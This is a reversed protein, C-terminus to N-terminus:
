KSTHTEVPTTFSQLVILVPYPYQAPLNSKEKGADGAERSCTCRMM